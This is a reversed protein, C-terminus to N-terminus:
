SVRVRIRGGLGGPGIGVAPSQMLFRATPLATPSPTDLHGLLSDILHESPLASDYCNSQTAM